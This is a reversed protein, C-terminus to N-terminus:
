VKKNKLLRLGNLIVLITSGEHAVVAVPIPVGTAFNAVAFAVMIGIAFIINQKTITKLRRSLDVAKSLSSLNNKMLVVDATELAVDTGEGMAIGIDATALAPADNIGDGVMAVTGFKEKLEKVIEVKAEPLCSAYYNALGAESAISKATEENDGTIMAAEIGMEKLAVLAEVAEPRITDKLAILGVVGEDDGVYVITKGEKQLEVAIGVKFDCAGEGLLEAKGIKYTKGQYEGIVGFGVVNEIMSPESIITGFSRKAHNIIADALPHTSHSEISATIEMMEEVSMGEKTHIDTVIPKGRTLTGTKDFGVVKLAALRELQVGGKFLIGSKAGNSIASLTAPTIAAALACPSAVVLLVLGRYVADALEMNFVFYGLIIVLTSIAIVIKAYPGEFKEIFLQSPSKESQANQVLKIIRSFLTEDAPKTITVQISGRMNVTSAYVDCGIGKEVPVSEGTIAAEDINTSGLHITGDAPIREGPKVLIIDGVALGKVAVEEEKGDVLRTANEPQLDMLASIEKHSKNFTYTEMAGALSFIFILMAGEGWYGIVAAGIAALMMLIDVNLDREKIAELFGDKAKVAGGAIYALVYLVIGSSLVDFRQLLWAALILAGCLLALVLEYNNRLKGIVRIM